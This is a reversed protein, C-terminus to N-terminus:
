RRNPVSKAPPVTEPEAAKAARRRWREFLPVPREKRPPPEAEAPPPATRAAPSRTGSSRAGSARAGSSRGEAEPPAPPPKARRATKPAPPPPGDDRRIVRPLEQNEPTAPPLLPTAPGEINNRNFGSDLLLRDNVEALDDRGVDYVRPTIIFVLSNQEGTRNKYSFLRGIGPLSELVPVGTGNQGERSIYFGGLILSQGNPIRSIGEVTSENVRPYVNGSPSEVLEVVNAVRPRLKMRITDDPMLTPTVSLTVGIERSREPEESANADEEDIKYRVQESISTNNTSANTQSIIVPFRDVISIIGQENDETVISPCAEATILNEDNLARLIATVEAPAFVLGPGGTYSRNSTLLGESQFSQTGTLGESSLGDLRPTPAQGNDNNLWDISDTLTDMMGEGNGGRSVSLPRTLGGTTGISSRNILGKRITYEDPLNFISNLSQVASFSIGEGLSARWDVGVKSERRSNVRLIRVNIVIQKKPRDIERLLKLVRTLRATNDSILLVNTKEEFEITGIEPTLLPKLMTKLKEFDPVEGGAGGGRGDSQGSLGGAPRAGRLYKLQYAITEAPLRALQAENMLYVTNGKEYVTLGHALALDEMQQRPDELRLHGTVNYEAATLENNHFFQRGTQRVLYQFVENLPANQIWYGDAPLEPLAGNLDDSERSLPEMAAPPLELPSADGPPLASRVPGARGAGRLAGPGRAGSPGEETGAPVGEAGKAPTMGAPVGEAGEAGEAPATGAPVEEASEAGEAPVIGAPMGLLLIGLAPLLLTRALRRRLPHPATM